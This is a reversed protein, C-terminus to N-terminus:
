RVPELEHSVGLSPTHILRQVDVRIRGVHVGEAPGIKASIVTQTAQAVNGTPLVVKRKSQVGMLKVAQPIQHTLTKTVLSPPPLITYIGLADISM